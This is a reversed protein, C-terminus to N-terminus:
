STPEFAMNGMTCLVYLDGFLYKMSRVPADYLFGVSAPKATPEGPVGRSTHALSWILTDQTM